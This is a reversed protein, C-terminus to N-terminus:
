TQQSDQYAVLSARQNGPQHNFYLVKLDVQFVDVMSLPWSLAKDCSNSVQRFDSLTSLGPFDFPRVNGAFANSYSTSGYHLCIKWPVM